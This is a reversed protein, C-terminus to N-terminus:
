QGMIRNEESLESQEPKRGGGKKKEGAYISM